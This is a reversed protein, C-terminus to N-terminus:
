QAHLREVIVAEDGPNYLLIRDIISTSASALNTTMLGPLGNNDAVEDSLSALSLTTQDCAWWPALKCPWQKNYWRRRTGLPTYNSSSTPLDTRWFVTLTGEGIIRFGVQQFRLKSHSQEWLIIYDEPPVSLQQQPTVADGGITAEGVAEALTGFSAARRGDIEVTVAAYNRIIASM